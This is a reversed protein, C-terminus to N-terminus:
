PEIEFDMSQTATNFKSKALKDTVTVQLVYEGPPMNAGLAVRGDAMLPQSGSAGAAPALAKKGDLVQEGNHFLRTQVELEPHQGADTKANIIQYGYALLAGRRFSRRAAGATIDESPAPAQALDAKAPAAQAAAEQLVIGSLALRGNEIDPVEVYQEASGVGETAADRLAARVLYPGPKAVPFHIGWIMGKKLYEDYRQSTLQLPFTTDIPALAMGDEDYAAAAVDILAKRSGDPESSWKLDKPNFYVLANISAGTRGLNSFVATLRPHISGAAFPSQLAESLEAERTHELPPNAGPDGFFGDRTRVHLGAKTVRLDIQHFQAQGSREEFTSADPHYGILYYDDSDEAAIRLAGTLDNGDQVFLGGNEQAVETMGQRTNTVQQSRQAPARGVRRSSSPVGVIDDAAVPSYNVVGRPDVTHIVVSARSAADSLQQVANAKVEDTAGQYIMSLDETFLVLSKRGPLGRMANVVFRVTALSGVELNEERYRYFLGEGRPRVGSTSTSMAGFSSTGVRSRGYKVRDLAAYLLRKDTTFQQLAGMGASTRVIAVLDGPRMQEDLFNRIADRVPPINEASLGLDDVVLALTRRVETPDPPLPPPPPEGKVPKAQVVRRAAGTGAGAKASVYSFNTIAQPKGDQWIEFDSAQLNPARRGKSDTVVADVQVLNVDIRIVTNSAAAAGSPPAPNQAFAIALAPFLAAFRPIAAM